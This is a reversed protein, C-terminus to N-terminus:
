KKHDNSAFKMIAFNLSLTNQKTNRKVTALWHESNLGKLAKIDAYINDWKEQFKMQM